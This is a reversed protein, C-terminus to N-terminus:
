SGLLHELAGQEDGNSAFLAQQATQIDFGMEVLRLVQLLLAFHHELALTQGSVM